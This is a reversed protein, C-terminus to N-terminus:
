KNKMDNDIKTKTTNKYDEIPQTTVLEVLIKPLFFKCFINNKVMQACIIFIINKNTYGEFIYDLIVKQKLAEM